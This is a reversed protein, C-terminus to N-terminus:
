KFDFLSGSWRAPGDGWFHADFADELVSQAAKNWPSFGWSPEQSTDSLDAYIRWVFLGAFGQADPLSALLAAYAEAQAEQDAVVDGLQEPWLWPQIATNKRATYGFESFFAPKEYRRSLESISEAAREGGARLQERSADDEWHLPYFANVGILDVHGWIVTDEADDWNAAYTILGRYESRVEEIVRVFSEARSTTVWSRLEVGVALLDVASKEAVRAWSLVFRSYSRAWLQWRADSGPNMLARWEGSELWLHPVLMVRLGRAHAQAVARSVNGKVESFQREFDLSVGASGADWVRGFVTLSVWTGGARVVEDLAREFAPSGYGRDGQLLGEIPGITMGRFADWDSRRLADSGPPLREIRGNVPARGLVIPRRESLEASRVNDQAGGSM